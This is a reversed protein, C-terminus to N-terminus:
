RIRGGIHYYKDPSRFCGTPKADRVSMTFDSHSHSYSKCYQRRFLVVLAELYDKSAPDQVLASAEENRCAALDRAFQIALWSKNNELGLWIAVSEANQYISRMKSTQISREPIDSQNICIADVWLVLDEGSSPRLRQLAHKLNPTVSLVENEIFVFQSNTREGWCYSLAVYPPAESLSTHFLSCRLPWSPDEAAKLRLLRISNQTTDLPNYNYKQTNKELTNKRSPRKMNHSDNM